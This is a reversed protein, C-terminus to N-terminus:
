TQISLKFSQLSIQRNSRNNKQDDFFRLSSYTYLKSKLINKELNAISLYIASRVIESPHM